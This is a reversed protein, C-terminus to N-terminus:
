IALWEKFEDVYMLQISTNAQEVALSAYGFEGINFEAIDYYSPNVINIFGTINIKDDTACNILVTERDQPTENLVIQVGETVKLIETNVTTYDETIIKAIAKGLDARSYPASSVNYTVQAPREDVLPRIDGADVENGNSLTLVLHGDLDIQADEVGVGDGGDAGDKGDTGSVGDRGAKGEPGVAGKDGKPGDAGAKGQPGTDGKMAKVTRIRDELSALTKSYKEDFALLLVKLDM